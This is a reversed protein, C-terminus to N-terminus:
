RKLIGSMIMLVKVPPNDCRSMWALEGPQLLGEV